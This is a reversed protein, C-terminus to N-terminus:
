FQLRHSRCCSVLSVPQPYARAMFSIIVLFIANRWRLSTQNCFFTDFVLILFDGLVTLDM